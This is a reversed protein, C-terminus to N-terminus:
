AQLSLLYQRLKAINEEQGKDAKHAKVITDFMEATDFLMTWSIHTTNDLPTFIVTTFFHPNFHEFGIKQRPIIELYVSRNPFNTGDPGHLTLKWEGNQQLNMAHITSTFGAPGWWHTIRGPETWAKWVLEVPAPLIATTQLERNSTDEM